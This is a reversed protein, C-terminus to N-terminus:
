LCIRVDKLRASQGSGTNGWGMATIQENDPMKRSTLCVTGVSPPFDRESPFYHSMRLIGIDNVINARFINQISYCVHLLFWLLRVRWIRFWDLLRRLEFQLLLRRPRFCFQLRIQRLEQKDRYFHLGPHRRHLARGHSHIQPIDPLRWLCHRCCPFSPRPTVQKVACACPSDIEPDM